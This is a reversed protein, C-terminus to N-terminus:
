FTLKNKTGTSAPSFFEPKRKKTKKGAGGLVIELQETAKECAGGKFGSTEISVTGAPTVSVVIQEAM